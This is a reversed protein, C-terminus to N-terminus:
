LLAELDVVQDANFVDPRHTIVIVTTNNSLKEIESVMQQQAKADLASSPEDLIIVKPKRLLSRAMAVRQRQGGSLASGREGVDTELGHPLQDIMRDAAATRLANQINEDTASDVGLLLNDRLSGSFLYPEQPVYAITSRVNHPEYGSIDNGGLLVQGSAPQDIGAALRGFTSKGIGSPGIVLTVTNPAARFNFNKLIAKGDPYAFTVDKFTLEPVADPPLLPKAGFAETETLVIDGLRARSIKINQWQEWLGSFNRLPGAVKEAILHFAILQGLTLEGAFVQLAGFYIIAITLAQGVAYTINSSAINIKGVQYVAELRANLTEDLGDLMKNESSLAKVAAIGSISEVMRTQHRAGADFQRRLRRRLVPGFGFYVLAQIPLSIIVILTLKASLTFLVALYIVVFTLDLIVGTTTGVLFGRITDTEGVRTITEGVRWSRFYSFPLRFLHEFIRGGMERTAMNAAQINLLASIISFGVHFLSVAVFVAVIVVLTAQREFPLIRDIIVQLIFPEVLGLLRICFALFVLELFVPTFKWLTKGFWSLPVTKQPDDRSVM